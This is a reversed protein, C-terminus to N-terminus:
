LYFVLYFKEKDHLLKINSQPVLGHTKTYLMKFLKRGFLHYGNQNVVDGFVKAFARLFPIIEVKLVLLNGEDLNRLFCPIDRKEADELKELVEIEKCVMNKLSQKSGSLQRAIKRLRKKLNLVAASGLKLMSVDDEVINMRETVVNIRGSSDEQRERVFKVCAIFVSELFCSVVNKGQSSMDKVIESVEQSGLVQRVFEYWRVQLVAYKDCSGGKGKECFFDFFTDSCRKVFGRFLVSSVLMDAEGALSSEFYFSFTGRAERCVSEFVDEELLAKGALCIARIKTRTLKRAAKGLAAAM